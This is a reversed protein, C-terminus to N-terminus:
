VAQALVRAIMDNLIKVNIPKTAFDDMGSALAAQRDSESTNATLAIIPTKKVRNGAEFARINRTAELGDMDPMQIDMLILDFGGQRALAVAAEGGDALVVEHHKGMLAQILMRNLAIDDVALIRLRPAPPATPVDVEVPKQPRGLDMPVVVQFQTGKRLVSWVAIRGGMLNVLQKSLTCGLGIGGFKRTLAADGQTLPNFVKALQASSMGIGTDLVEFQLASEEKRVKLTVRGEATFKFANDLLHGLVQALRQDDGYCDEDVDVACDITWGLGKTRAVEAFSQEVRALLSKLSFEHLNLFLKGQELDVTDLINDIIHLLANASNTVTQLHKQQEPTLQTGMLVETFGLILNMPTRIEHSMSLMLETRTAAAQEAREKGRRLKEGLNKEGIDRAIKSVGIIRGDHDRMPSLTVSIECLTGNKRRRITEFHEVREGARIRNLFDTEESTRDAPIAILMPQGIAEAATFGLLREAGKNWSTIIGEPTKSIIADSSEDIISRALLLDTMQSKQLTLDTISGVFLDVGDLKAHGLALRIPFTTKNKHLALVDRGQGIIKAQRTQLYNSLYRDHQSHFPEPMLVNVNLGIVEQARWGFIKEAAPNFEQIRGDRDILVLADVVTDMITRLRERELELRSVLGRYRLVLNFGAVLGTLGVVAAFIALALLYHDAVVSSAVTSPVGAFRAALMGTYHMGSIALGMVTGSLLTVGWDGLRHPLTDIGFRIWLALVALLVAVVLSLLFYAPDYRLVSAMQLAAMGTYHMAGVGLGVLAGGVWLELPRISQRAILHLAVGAALVSPLLSFATLWPEYAATACLDFALMGIFHMAWVGGGLALSGTSLALGRAVGQLSRAQVAVQMAMCSSLIAVLLSLGVMGFDHVGVLLPGFPGDPLFFRSDFNM